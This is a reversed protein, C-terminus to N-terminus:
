MDPKSKTFNPKKIKSFDLIGRNNRAEELSLYKTDKKGYEARITDYEVSIEMLFEDKKESCLKKAVTVANSADTSHVVGYEYNPAIKVATHIKSTTAGGILLPIKLGAKEMAAAVVTM